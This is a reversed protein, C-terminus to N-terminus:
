VFNVPRLRQCAHFHQILICQKKCHNLDEPMKRGLPDLGFASKYMAAIKLTLCSPQGDIIQRHAARKELCQDLRQPAGPM